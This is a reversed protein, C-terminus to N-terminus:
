FNRFVFSTLNIPIIKLSHKYNFVCFYCAWNFSSFFFAFSASIWLSSLAKLFCLSECLIYKMSWIFCNLLSNLFICLVIMSNCFFGDSISWIFSLINILSYAIAYFFHSTSSFSLCTNEWFILCYCSNCCSFSYNWSRRPFFISTSSFCNYSISASWFDNLM